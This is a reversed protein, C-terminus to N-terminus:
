MHHDGHTLFPQAPNPFLSGDWGQGSQGYDRNRNFLCSSVTIDLTSFIHLSDPFNILSHSTLNAHHTNKISYTREINWEPSENNQYQCPVM